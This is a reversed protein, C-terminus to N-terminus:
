SMVPIPGAGQLETLAQTLKTKINQSDQASVQPSPIYYGKQECIKYIEYQFQEDANCMQQYTQRLNLDCCETIAKAYAGISAKTGSLIDMLMDRETM